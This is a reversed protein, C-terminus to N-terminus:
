SVKKFPIVFFTSNVGKELDLYRDFECWFDKALGLHIFPVKLAALWNTLLNGVTARGRIVNIISGFVARYFFGFM